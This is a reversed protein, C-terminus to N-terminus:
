PQQSMLNLEDELQNIGDLSTNSVNQTEDTNMPTIYPQTHDLKLSQRISMALEDQMSAFDQENDFQSMQAAQVATEETQYHPEFPQPTIHIPAEDRRLEDYMLEREYQQESFHYLEDALVLPESSNLQNIDPENLMFVANSDVTVSIIRLSGLALDGNLEATPEMYLTFTDGDSAGLVKLDAVDDISVVWKSGVKDGASLTMTDPLGFITLFGAETASPNQLSLGLNLSIESPDKVLIDGVQTWIPADVQPEIEIDFNLSQATSTDTELSGLVTASDVSAIDMQVNLTGFALNGPHFEFQSLQTAAVVISATYEGTTSNYTFSVFNSGIKIGDLDVLASADASSVTFTVELQESGSLELTEVNLDVLIVEDEDSHYLSDPPSIIQVGDAIPMVGVTVDMKTTAFDDTGLEQTIAQITLPIDGNFDKPPIMVLSSLQATTVSWSYTPQGEFSGGDAGNNPLQILNGGSDRYYIVAGEPVGQVTLFIVESGDKDILGLNGSALSSLDIESDENGVITTTGAPLDAADVVPTVTITSVSNFNSQDTVDVGNITATDIATGTLQVRFEGSLHQPPVFELVSLAAELDGMNFGKFEWTNSTGAKLLWYGTPDNITGGDLLTLTIPQTPDGFLVTEQGGTSPSTDTDAFTLTIGLPIPQDELMTGNAISINVGDVKPAIEIELQQSDDIKTDGSVTDTAIIRIPITLEGAYDESINHLKLNALSATTFVYEIVYTGTSDYVADVDAGTFYGGQPLDSALIRFSILDNTDTTPNLNLHGSFDIVNDEIADVPSLQLHDVPTADSSGAGQDFKVYFNTSIIDADDRDLVRAEVTIQELGTAFESTISAGALIDLAYEQVTDSTMGQVPIIWRGDGDDIAGNPHEVYWGDGSPVKIVIYDLIESGDLDQDFFLVQNTLDIPSGDTSTLVRDNRQLNTDPDVVADVVVNVQSSVYESVTQGTESTDLIQYMVEFAFSGDADEPPLVALRGSNLLSELDPSTSDFLTSVDLGSLPISLESGDFLLVLESGQHPITLGTITESGDIDAALSPTLNLLIAQDELGLSTTSLSAHSADIVPAIEINLTLEYDSSDGDLETSEAFLTLSIEGSFDELPRLSLTSLLAASVGYVPKGNIFDVVALNVQNGSADVFIVGDPLGTLRLDLTESGDKDGTVLTFNLPIDGDEAFATTNTIVGLNNDISWLGSPDSIIPADNAVGSLTITVSESPSYNPNPNTPTDEPAVGDQSSETAVSRVSITFDGFNASSVDEAPILFASGATVDAALVTWVGGGLDTASPAQLSWGSPLIFEFSLTESGSNDSLAGSIIDKLAIPADEQSRIDRTTLTPIDAVPKVDITVIEQTSLATDGNDSETTRAQITFTFEGALNADVNATLADLQAQSIAMGNTINMGSSVLNLGSSINNIIYSLTESGQADAATEDKSSAGLNLSLSGSDENVSYDFVSTNDWVAIDAVSAITIPVTTLIPGKGTINVSINFSANVTADSADEAPRYALTGNPIAVGLSDFSLNSGSLIYNGSGDKPLEVGDLTLIGGQLAGTDFVISTIVEGEDVDGPSAQVAVTTTTDEIFETTFVKISGEQDKATITLTDTVIDGDNDVVTFLINESYAPAAYLFELTTVTVLGNADVSMEGYKVANPNADTMLDITQGVAYEVGKYTVKTVSAGDAGAQLDSFMQVTHTDNPAETFELTRSTAEPIDDTVQITVTQASSRDGDADVAQVDLTIDLLNEGNASPHDLAKFQKYEVKGDASFRLQFVKSGDGARTAIYWGNGDPTSTLSIAQGDSFYSGLTFGDALEISSIEDGGALTDLTQSTSVATATTLGGENINLQLPQPLIAQIGDYIDITLQGNSITNDSDILDVTVALSDLIGSGVLHDIPGLLTFEVAVTASTEADVAIDKPLTITFVLEGSATIGQATAGNDSLSWYIAEGNQTLANGTVNKVQSADTINFKIDVLSDKSASVNFLGQDTDDFATVSPLESVTLKINDIVASSSDNVTINLNATTSDGDFDTAIISFDFQDNGLQDFAQYLTFSYDQNLSDAEGNWTNSLNIVFVPIAPDGTHATLTRGGDSLTYSISVGQATLTPQMSIASFTLSTIADSGVILDLQGTKEIPTGTLNQENFTLTSLNAFQPNNGDSFQWSIEGKDILTGDLDEATIGLALTILDSFEHDLPRLLNLAVSVSLDDGSNVASLSLTLVTVPSGGSTSATLTKGDASLSFVLSEGNSKLGMNNLHYPTLDTFAISSAVLTDSGASISFHETQQLSTHIDAEQTSFSIDSMVGAAGDEITITATGRGPTGDSDKVSYDFTLIQTQTNDLNAAAVFEWSGNSHVTLQGYATDIIAPSGASILYESGDLTIKTVVLPGEQTYDNGILSDSSSTDETVLYRDNVVYPLTDIFTLVAYTIIQESTGDSDTQTGEIKIYSTVSIGSFEDITQHLSVKLDSGVLSVTLVTLGDGDRTVIFSQGDPALNISLSQGESTLTLLRAQDASLKLAADPIEFPVTTTVEPGLNLLLEFLYHNSPIDLTPMLDRAQNGALDAVTVDMSWPNGRNLSSVDIGSHLWSGDSNVTTSFTLTDMGDSITLIVNQGQEVGTTTGMLETNLGYFFLAADFGDAGTDIDISIQTDIIATDVASAPNGAVDIVEATATINGDVFGQASLDQAPISWNGTNQVLTTFILTHGASDKLTVTITRGAEINNTTGSIVVGNLEHAGLYNDAGSEIIIDIESLSDKIVQASSSVTNGALDSTSATFTLQGDQLSSLDVNDLQWVGGVVETTFTLSNNLSDRVVITITQNDEIDSTTGSLDVQSIEAANLVTDTLDQTTDVALTIEALIDVPMVTSANALNGAVDSVQASATLNGDNFGSLDLNDLSWQGGSVVTTFELTQAGDTLTITVSQGDEVNVVTGRLTVSSMEAANLVGDSDVIEITISAQTDKTLTTTDSAPNGYRDITETTVSIQGDNLSSLDLGFLLWQGLIVKAQFTLSNNSSDTFTVTIPQGNEIDITTGRYIVFGDSDANIVKDESRPSFEIDAVVNKNKVDTSQATNGSTDNVVATASIQGDVLSSLDLNDLQWANNTVEAEFTLQRGSEDTVTITVTQGDEINLTRGTLSTLPSEFQNLTDDSGTLIEITIEVPSTDKEITNTASASNGEFDSTEAYLTLQGDNLSSLDADTVFWVGNRVTANFTLSNGASDSVTILVPRGDEVNIVVGALLADQAELSNLVNDGDIAAITVAAQTEKLLETQTSAPNGAQDHTFAEFTLPGDSLSSLDTDLVQWHGGEVLALFTLSNGQNDTVIITVTQGDEIENVIGYIDTALMENENIVTDTGSDVYIGINAQIDVPSLTSAEAPNGAQDTVSATATLSGHSFGELNVGEVRWQGNAVIATATVTQDNLDRFTITVVQGDEVNTVTGQATVSSLEQLNLVGDSDVIEIDIYAQTDKLVTNTNEAVNGEFDTSTAYLTLEGDVLSSLDVDKVVWVGNRITATFSLSNGQTDTVTIYVLRADEINHVLGALTASTVEHGNLVQDSDIAAIAVFAKSEKFAENSSTALNGAIDLASADFHLPGDALSSLDTDDVRWQGDIVIANFSLTNGQSDTVTITVTQGDEIETVAGWIDTSLMETANIVGDSGTDLNIDITALTDKVSTDSASNSEGPYIPASIEATITGEALQSIDLDNIQWSQDTVTVLITLQVGQSDTLTLSLQQGDRAFLAQGQLDVVPTEVRNIYNDGGDIIQVSLSLTPFNDQDLNNTQPPPTTGQSSDGLTSFGSTPTIEDGDRSVLQFGYNIGQQTSNNQNDASPSNDSHPQSSSSQLQKLVAEPLPLTKGQLTIETPAITLSSLEESNLQLTTIGEQMEDPSILIWQGDSTVAWTLEDAQVYYIILTDSTSPM